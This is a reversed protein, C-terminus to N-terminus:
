LDLRRRTAPQQRAAKGTSPRLVAELDSRRFTVLLWIIIPVIFTTVPSNSFGNLMIEAAKAEVVSLPIAGGWYMSYFLAAGIRLVIFIHVLVLGVTLAFWRRSWALPTALILAVVAATPLYGWGRSSYEMKWRFPTGPNKMHMEVDWAAHEEAPPGLEVISRFGFAHLLGNSCARFASGYGSKLGPWPIIFLGYVLLLRLAFRLASSPAPM